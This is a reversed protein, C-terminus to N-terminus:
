ETIQLRMQEGRREVEHFAHDTRVRDEMSVHDHLVVSQGSTTFLVRLPRGTNHAFEYIMQLFSNCLKEGTDDTELSNLGHLVIFRVVPTTELLSRLLLLGADWNQQGLVQEYTKSDFQFDDNELRFQLLQSTLSYTLAFCGAEEASKFPHANSTQPKKCIYSIFPANARAATQIVGLAALRASTAEQPEKPTIIWMSQPCNTPSGMWYGLKHIVRPDALLPGTHEALEVGDTGGVHDVVSLLDQRRQDAEERTLGQSAPIVQQLPIISARGPQEETDNQPGSYMMLPQELLKTPPKGLVAIKTSCMLLLLQRMLEGAQPGQLQGSYNTRRQLDIMIDLKEKIEQADNKVDNVGEHTDLQIAYGGSEAERYILDISGTIGHEAKQVEQVFKGDMSDLVRALTGKLYWKAFEHFFAFLREYVSALREMM